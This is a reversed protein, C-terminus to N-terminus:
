YPPQDHELDPPQRNPIPQRCTHIAHRPLVLLGRDGTPIRIPGHPTIWYAVLGLTWVADLQQTTLRTPDLRIPRGQDYLKIVHLGCDRCPGFPLKM